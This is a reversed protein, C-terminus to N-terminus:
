RLSVPRSEDQCLLKGDSDALLRVASRQGYRVRYQAPALGFHRRFLGSFAGLSAFGLASCIEVVPSETTLLLTCARELRKRRHYHHPTEGFLHAFQRLFHHPSLCAAHAVEALSVATDMNSAMYDRARHLRRYLELRTSARMAPLREAERYINRHAQLLGEMLHHFQEELWDQTMVGELIAQRIRFLMPSVLADHAYIRDFFGSPPPASPLAEDLLRADPLRLGQSVQEAFGPRFWLCFSEATKMGEWSPPSELASAYRQGQNLVLYSTAELTLRTGETEYTEQGHFCCKISLPGENEGFCTETEQLRSVFNHGVAMPM